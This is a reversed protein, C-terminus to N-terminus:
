GTFIYVSSKILTPNYECVNKSEIFIFFLAILNFNISNESYKETYKESYKESETEGYLFLNWEKM